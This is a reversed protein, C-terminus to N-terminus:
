VDLKGLPAFLDSWKMMKHQFYHRQDVQAKGHIYIVQLSQTSLKHELSRLINQLKKEVIVLPM